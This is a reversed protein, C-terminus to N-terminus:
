EKDIDPTVTPSIANDGQGAQSSEADSPERLGIGLTWGGDALGIGIEYNWSDIRGSGDCGDLITRKHAPSNWWGAFMREPLWGGGVNEMVGGSYGDYGHDFYWYWPSHQMGVVLMEESWAQAGRMLNDDISALKGKCLPENARAENVLEVMRLRYQWIEGVTPDPTPSAIATATATPAVVTATPFVLPCDACMVAPLYVSTRDEAGSRALAWNGFIGAGVVFLVMIIVATKFISRTGVPVEPPWIAASNENGTGSARQLLKIHKHM